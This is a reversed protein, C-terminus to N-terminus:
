HTKFFKCNTKSFIHIIIDIDSSHLISRISHRKDDSILASQM